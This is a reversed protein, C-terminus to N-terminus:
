RGKGVAMLCIYTTCRPVNKSGQPPAHMGREDTHLPEAAPLPAPPAAALAETNLPRVFQLVAECVQRVTEDGPEGDQHLPVFSRDVGQM